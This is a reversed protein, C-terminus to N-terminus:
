ITSWSWTFSLCGSFVSCLFSSFNVRHSKITKQWSVM